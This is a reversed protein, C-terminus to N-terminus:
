SAPPDQPNEQNVAAEVENKVGEVGTALSIEPSAPTKAREEEELRAVCWAIEIQRMCESLYSFDAGQNHKWFDYFSKSTAGKYRELNSANTKELDNIRAELKDAEQRSEILDAELKKAESFNTLDSEKYKEKAELAKNLATQQQKMEEALKNEEELLAANAKQVAELQEIYKAEVAKLEEAHWQESAKSQETIVGSRLWGAIMTLLASALENLARNLIQDVDMSEIGAMAERSHEHKLIRTMKDKSSKLAHSSLDDRTQVLAAPQTQDVPASPPPTSGVPAPPSQQELPSPPPTTNKRLVLQQLTRLAPKKKAPPEKRCKGRHRRSAKKKSALADPASYLDFMEESPM